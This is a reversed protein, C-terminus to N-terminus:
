LMLLNILCKGKINYENKLEEEYIVVCIKCVQRYGKVYLPSYAGRGCKICPKDQAWKTEHGKKDYLKPLNNVWNEELIRCNSCYRNKGNRICSLLKQEEMEENNEVEFIEQTTIEFWPEPRVNTITYHTHKIEFIYKVKDGNVIAIDAVYKNNVDRYEIVVNDNEEYKIEHWMSGDFTGCKCSQWAISISKKEKLWSALKYKAEKHLESENPHEFYVCHNTQSYHAFHVKRINGKKLIVKQQCGICKYQKNKDAKYPLDYENNDIQIAGLQYM